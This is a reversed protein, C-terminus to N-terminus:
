VKEDMQAASMGQQMTCLYKNEDRLRDAENLIQQWRKRLM